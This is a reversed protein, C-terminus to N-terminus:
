IHKIHISKKLLILNLLRLNLRIKIQILKMRGVNDKNDNTYVETAKIDPNLIMVEAALLECNIKYYLVVSQPSSFVDM